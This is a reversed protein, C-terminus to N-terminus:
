SKKREVRKIHRALANLFEEPIKLTSKKARTYFGLTARHSLLAGEHKLFSELDKREGSVPWTSIPYSFRGKRDGYAASPFKSGKPLPLGPKGKFPLPKALRKGLWTSVETNVANGVLLWRRRHNFDRTSGDDPDTVSSDIDTWGRKFGQLAEADRIDPTIVDMNTRLIAPPSPIGIGSGGKLTPVCNEGWGLGTNGETWYFGHAFKTLPLPNAEPETAAGQFLVDRPDGETTAYLFIRKRRQPVGFALADITRYAWRYGLKELATLVEDMYVGRHLFRWNPVNELLVHPFHRVSLLELVERVLSSNPGDFGKTEGAQSLDTCPFGATILNSSKSVKSILEARAKVNLVVPVKPYRAKLVAVAEPDRECFLSVDHGAKALGFELGAIGAFLATTNLARTVLPAAPAEAEDAQEARAIFDIQDAKSSNRV